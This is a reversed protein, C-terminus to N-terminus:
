PDGWRFFLNTGAVAVFVAGIVAVILASFWVAGVASLTATAAPDAPNYLVEVKDGVRYGFILGGQPFSVARGQATTFSIQPHSGGANLASVVGEARAAGQVFNRKGLANLGALALLILGILLFIIYVMRGAKGGVVM